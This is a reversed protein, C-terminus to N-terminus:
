PAHYREYLEQIETPPGILTIRDGTQLRTSGRPFITQDDRRILAVLANSPWQVQGIRSGILPAASGSETLEITVFREHRLLAEKLDQDSSADGWRQPFEPAEVQSALEAVTRLHQTTREAPSLLFILARVRLADTSDPEFTGEDQGPFASGQDLAVGNRSRVLALVPHELEPHRTEFIVAKGSGPTIGQAGVQELRKRIEAKPLAGDALREAVEDMVGELEVATTLDVIEARAVLEEYSDEESTGREQLLQWLELDVGPDGQESVRRLLTYIAGRKAVRGRAYFWYWGSSMGIIAAVFLLAFIGLSFILGVMALIGIVQVWPYLPSRYGPAYAEFGSERMIIVALNVLAFILLLFASGLSALREVDLFLISAIMVGTTVLISVTPTGFRGLRDFGSWVLEDRAMALPYRSATLIGANGTSAFAAVAAVVVLLLGFPEPLWGLFEEGATAVPTLDERLAVPDLTGVMIAVGGVYITGVTLLALFMGLPLNRDLDRVEEAAAAVKTLGAYSIFVLGITSILGQVGFALFPTYREAMVEAVGEGAVHAAGQVLYYAMISLLTVVLAKQLWATEKAGMINLAAFAVALAVALPRMPVDFFLVTYAGMGVLAFASKFSLVLWDGFGGITGIWPGLSRHVFFYTGAARPMASSLEAISFMAPLMLLSSLAYALVVSPGTNAAAIGPLLFFGSAFMAGTCLAYVDFLGLKKELRHHGTAGSL